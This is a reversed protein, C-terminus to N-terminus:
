QLFQYNLEEILALEEKTLDRVAWVQVYQGDVLSPELEYAIKGDEVFPRETPTVPIWGTPLNNQDGDWSPDDLLIDGVHRPYENNPSIFIHTM